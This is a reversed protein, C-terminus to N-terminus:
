AVGRKAENLATHLEPAIADFFGGATAAGGGPRLM